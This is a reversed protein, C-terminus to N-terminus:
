LRRKVARAAYCVFCYASYFLPLKEVRRYLRWIKKVAALKNSSLTGESRRYLTLIEDLGYAYPVKKLIKWWNATDESDTDPFYIDERSLKEMDFMVTSTFITTNKLAHRYDIKEPVHVVKGLPTLDKDAFEYGTFSFAAGHSTMFEVQRSVKDSRWSDDADIFAIYDGSAGDIGTNRAGAVGKKYRNDLLAVKLNHHNVYDLIRGASGDSSGDNVAIVEIDKYDQAEISSLTEEIYAECNYVPIVVSVM